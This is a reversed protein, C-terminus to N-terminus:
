ENVGGAKVIHIVKAYTFENENLKNLQEVVKDVDYAAPLEVVKQRIRDVRNNAKFDKGDHCNIYGFEDILKMVASRGILDDNM